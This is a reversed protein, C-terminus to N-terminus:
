VKVIRSESSMFNDHSADPLMDIHVIGPNKGPEFSGLEDDFGLAQAGNITAWSLLEELSVHNNYKKITKIEEWVSLKWNSSLSDTGITMCASNEIFAEYNPLSNEIYLNANACTAWFVNESWTHAAKIDEDTTMTNHVLLNRNAPNMNAIAYHIATKNLPQFGSLPLGFGEFFTIFGGTANQFLENEDAVEQNHISVTRDDVNNERIFKFLGESVTYPAHPVYSKKNKNFDSHEKYVTSYQEIASSTMGANIFDFMEIFTYYKIRSSNKTEFSNSTNSIDGVAVIGSEYMAQDNRAIADKIEEMPFERLAVVKKLFSLLGTGSPIIGKMHSLELHCHTNIFGPSLIGPYYKVDGTEVQNQEILAEIRGKKVILVHNSLFKKSSADFIYDASLKIM